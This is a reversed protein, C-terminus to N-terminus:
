DWYSDGLWDLSRDLKHIAAEAIWADAAQHEYESLWGDHIFGYTDNDGFVARYRTDTVTADHGALTEYESLWGTHIYKYTEGYEAQAPFATLAASLAAALATMALVNRSHTSKKM